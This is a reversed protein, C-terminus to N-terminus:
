RSFREGADHARLSMRQLTRSGPYGAAVYADAPAYITQVIPYASGPLWGAGIAFSVSFATAFYHVCLVPTTILLICLRRKRNAVM